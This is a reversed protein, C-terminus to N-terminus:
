EMGRQAYASDPIPLVIVELGGTITLTRLVLDVVYVPNEPLEIPDPYACITSKILLRHTM